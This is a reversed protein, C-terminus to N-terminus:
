YVRAPQILPRRDAALAAVLRDALEHGCSELVNAMPDPWSTRGTMM